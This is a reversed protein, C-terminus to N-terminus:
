VEIINVIVSGGTSIATIAGTPAPVNQPSFTISGGPMIKTGRGDAFSTGGATNIWIPNTADQNQITVAIRNVNAPLIQSSSTAVTASTSSHAGNVVGPDILLAGKNNCQPNIFQGDTLTPKTALYQAMNIVNSSANMAASSQAGILGASRTTNSAITSLSSNSTTIKGDISALSNNGTAQGTTTALGNLKTDISSLSSNATLQNASTAAGSPLPATALSVPQTAPFNSVSVSGIANTGAPIPQGATTNLTGLASVIASNGSSVTSDLALGNTTGINATITGSTLGVSGAINLTGNLASLINGLTMNGATQATATAQSSLKTDISTLLNNGTVQNGATADGGGGSGGGGGFSPISGDPLYVCVDLLSRNANAQTCTAEAQLTTGRASGTVFTRLPIMSPHGQVGSMTAPSLGPATPVVQNSDKAYDTPFNLIDQEQRPRFPDDPTGEGDAAFYRTDGNADKGSFTPM